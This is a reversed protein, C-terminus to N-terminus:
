IDGPAENSSRQVVPPSPDGMREDHPIGAAGFQAVVSQGYELVYVCANDYRNDVGDNGGNVQYSIAKGHPEEDEVGCWLGGGDNEHDIEGEGVQGEASGKRELDVVLQLSVIPSQSGAPAPLWTVHAM